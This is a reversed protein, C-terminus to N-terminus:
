AVPEPVPEDAPTAEVRRLALVAWVGGLLGAAASAWFFGEAGWPVVAAVPLVLRVVGIVVKARLSSRAAGRARLAVLPGMSLGGAVFAAAAAPLVPRFPEWAHGLLAAPWAAPVVMVLVAYLACGATLAASLVVAPALLRTRRATVFEPVALVAVAQAATSMPGYLVGQARVLLPLLPLGLASVVLGSSQGMGFTVSWEAAYVWHRPRLAGLELRPGRALAALVLAGSVVLLPVLAWPGSGTVLVVVLGAVAAVFQLLSYPAAARARGAGIWAGRTSDTPVVLLTFALSLLGVVTDPRVLAASVAASLLGVLVGTAASRRVHGRVADGDWAPLEQAVPETTISRCFGVALAHVLFVVAFQAAGEASGRLVAVSLALSTLSGAAQDTLGWTLRRLRHRGM